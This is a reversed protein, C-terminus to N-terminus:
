QPKMKKRSATDRDKNQSYPYPLYPVHGEKEKRVVRAYEERFWNTIGEEFESPNFYSPDNVFAEVEEQQIQDNIRGDYLSDHRLRPSYPYTYGPEGEPLSAYWYAYYKKWRDGRDISTNAEPLHSYANYHEYRRVALEMNRESLGDLMGPTDFIAQVAMFYPRAVHCNRGFLLMAHDLIATVYDGMPGPNRQIIHTWIDYANFRNFLPHHNKDKIWPFVVLADYIADHYQYYPHGERNFSKIYRNRTNYLRKEM